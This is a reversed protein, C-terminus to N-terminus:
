LKKLNGKSKMSFVVQKFGACKLEDLITIMKGCAVDEDARLFISEETKDGLTARVTKVLAGAEVPYNNFFVKGDKNATVVYEQQPAGEKSEGHPLAVKIGNHMMPAAIMFIILLTLATDILPTLSVEPIVYRRLQRKRKGKM